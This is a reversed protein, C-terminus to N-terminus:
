LMYQIDFTQKRKIVYLPNRSIKDLNDM